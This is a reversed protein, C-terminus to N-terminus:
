GNVQLLFLTIPDDLQRLQLGNSNRTVQPDAAPTPHPATRWTEPPLASTATTSQNTERHAPKVRDLSVVEKHGHREITITKRGHRLVRFPGDYPTQLSRRVVDNRLFIHSCSELESSVYISRETPKRPPTPRLKTMIHRLCSAYDGAPIHTQQQDPVFFEGPLRLTTGYVLEAASCGVDAKFATRIDCLVIPLAEVWSHEESAMLAAKLPSRSLADAVTNDVGKIHRIDTTFESIYSMQRLERATHAGGEANLSRLAYMLPKHDTLVFFETGELYHRFHRITAYVALLERGFPSYRQETSTLKRSFFAIPRWVGKILEQLAAGVAVNSADVMVCQLERNRTLSFRPTPLVDRSRKSPRKPARRGTSSKATDKTDKAAGEHTSLLLHLPQLITACQPIFRRYYNVLGLFERLQRKTNPQPFQEVAKVKDPHPKIGSNSIVHGLFTLKHVGFETKDTNVLIGHEALRQFVSRLHVEHEDPSGSAILLDDLYAHCFDLGHLVGNIFRQFSQGSNRLGFPMRLFEFLGFPTAIATKPIDESAMPIQHYARVLDIKSFLTAGHLNATVDHIHPLPYRDPVTARNLARYDGCPRWDGPTSKPVMHLPSAWPSASPRIIGLELMHDFEQRAVQLRQPSLRRPRAYVPPGTTSIHHFVNHTVVGGTQPPRTLEPFERLIATFRATGPPIVLTPSLPPHKSPKGCVEAQSLPDQIRRNRVDVLLGFHRLFDAGLIAFKVDAVVFIWRFKRKFCLDLSLSRHRYTPITTNNVAQLPSSCPGKRDAPSAPSAPVVSVEAGTDVLFRTGKERDTLFFVSPHSEAFKRHYWCLQRQQQTASRRTSQSGSAQLSQLAAVTDALRSIAARTELLAPSPSAEALVTAVAPTNVAMLRDAMEAIKSVDTEGSATVGIRVTAPLRKLFLEQVLRSDLGATCGALQQMHRLLQSPRRDGLENERLLQQLREPESPTLRRILTEKLVRYADEAPPALLIDRVESATAPPINAVVHHYKTHDTTICRAAFQSEVQAFWLAPDSTWFPPLKVDLVAVTPRAVADHHEM